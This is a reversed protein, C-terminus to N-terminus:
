SLIVITDYPSFEDKDLKQLDPFRRYFWRSNLSFLSFPSSVRCSGGRQGLCGREGSFAFCPSGLRCSEHYLINQILSPIASLTPCNRYRYPLSHSAHLLPLLFHCNQHRAQRQGQAKAAAGQLGRRFVQKGQRLHRHLVRAQGVGEVSIQLAAVFIYVGGAAAIHLGQLHDVQVTVAALLRHGKEAACRVLLGQLKQKEPRLLIRESEKAGNLGAACRNIGNGEPIKVAVALQLHSHAPADTCLHLGHGHVTQPPIGGLRHHLASVAAKHHVIQVAVAQKVQQEQACIGVAGGQGLMEAPPLPLQAAAAWTAQAARRRLQAPAADDAALQVALAVGGEDGAHVLAVLGHGVYQHAPLALKFIHGLAAAGPFGIDAVGEALETGLVDIVVADDLNGIGGVAGNARRGPHEAPIPVIVAPVADPDHVGIM